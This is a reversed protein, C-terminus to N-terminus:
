SGQVSGNEDLYPLFQTPFENKLMRRAMCRTLPLWHNVRQINLLDDIWLSIDGSKFIAHAIENRLPELNSTFLNGFRKGLAEPIFIMAITMEDWNRRPHFIANLWSVFEQPNRPVVEVPRSFSRQQRRAEAGLKTRRLRVGEIIKFFCLFRYIPSNSNLGERYLSAHHAFESDWAPMVPEVAFPAELFPATVRIGHSETRLETTETVEIDMPIDLHVSWNSFAPLLAGYAKRLAEGRNQANFPESEIKGLFGKENPYGTFDIKADPTQASIRIQDANPDPPTFAPKTIALHSDGKLSGTFSFEKEPILSHGPRNLLFTVKYLGPLGAPGGENRPDPGKFVNLAVMEQVEGSLGMLDISAKTAMPDLGVLRSNNQPNTVGSGASSIANQDRQGRPGCCRKYKKGSGCPCPANRGIRGM